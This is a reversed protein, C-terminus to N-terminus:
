IRVEKWSSPRRSKNYKVLLHSARIRGAGSELPDIYQLDQHSAYGKITNPEVGEPVHWTSEKTRRNYYYVRRRSRSMRSEWESGDAIETSEESTAPTDGNNSVPGKINTTATTTKEEDNNIPTEIETEM